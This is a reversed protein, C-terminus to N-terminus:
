IIIIAAAALISAAAAGCVWFLIKRRRRRLAEQRLFGPGAGLVESVYGNAKQTLLDMDTANYEPRVFVIAREFYKNETNNVEIIRRNVGKLM